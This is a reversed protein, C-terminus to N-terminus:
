FFWESPTMKCRKSFSDLNCIHGQCKSSFPGFHMRQWPLTKPLSTVRKESFIFFFDSKSVLPELIKLSQDEFPRTFSLINHFEWFIFILQLIESKLIDNIGNVKPAFRYFCVTKEHGPDSCIKLCQIQIYVLNSCLTAKPTPKKRYNRSNTAFCSCPYWCHLLKWNHPIKPGFIQCVYHCSWNKVPMIHHNINNQSTKQCDCALLSVSKPFHKLHLGM